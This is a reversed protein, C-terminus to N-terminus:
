PRVRVPTSRNTTTGDGLQYTSNNGCAWVTDDNKIFMSLGNGASISKIGDLVRVVYPGKGVLTGDGLQGYM